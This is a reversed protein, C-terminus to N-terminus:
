IEYDVKGLTLQAHHIKENLWSIFKKIVQNYNHQCTHKGDVLANVLAYLQYGSNMSERNSCNDVQWFTYWALNAKIICKHYNVFRQSKNWSM